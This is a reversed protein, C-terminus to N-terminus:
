EFNYLKLLSLSFNLSYSCKSNNWKSVVALFFTKSINNNSDESSIQLKETFYTLRSFSLHSQMFYLKLFWRCGCLMVLSFEATKTSVQTKYSAIIKLYVLSYSKETTISFKTSFKIFTTPSMSQHKIQM